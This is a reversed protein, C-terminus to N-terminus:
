KRPKFKLSSNQIEYVIVYNSSFLINFILIVQEIFFLDSVGTYEFIKIVTLVM